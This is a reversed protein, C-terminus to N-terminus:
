NDLSLSPHLQEVLLADHGPDDPQYLNHLIHPDSQEKDDSFESLFVRLYCLSNIPFAAM